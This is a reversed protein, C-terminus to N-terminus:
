CQEVMRTAYDRFKDGMASSLNYFELRHGGVGILDLIQKAQEAREKAGINGDIY